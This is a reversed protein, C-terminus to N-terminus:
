ALGHDDCEAGPDREPHDPDTVADLVEARSRLLNVIADRDDLQAQEYDPDDPAVLLPGLHAISEAFRRLEAAAVMRVAAWEYGDVRATGNHGAVTLEAAEAPLPLNVNM